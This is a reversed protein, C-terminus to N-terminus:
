HTHSNESAVDLTTFDWSSLCPTGRCTSSISPRLTTSELLILLPRRTLKRRVSSCMTIPDLPAPSKPNYTWPWRTITTAFISDATQGYHTSRLWSPSTTFRATGTLTDARTTCQVNTFGSVAQPVPSTKELLRDPRGHLVFFRNVNPARTTAINPSSLPRGSSTGQWTATASKCRSWHM